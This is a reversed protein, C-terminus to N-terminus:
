TSWRNVGTNTQKNLHSPPNASNINTLSTRDVPRSSWLEPSAISSAPSSQTASRGAKRITLRSSRAAGISTSKSSPRVPKIFRWRPSKPSAPVMVTNQRVNQVKSASSWYIFAKTPRTSSGPRIIRRAAFQGGSASPNPWSNISRSNRHSGCLCPLFVSKNQSAEAKRYM